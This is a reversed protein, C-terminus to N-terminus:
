VADEIKQLVVELQAVLGQKDHDLISRGKYNNINGNDVLPYPREKQLQYM